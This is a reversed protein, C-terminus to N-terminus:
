TSAFIISKPAQNLRQKTTYYIKYKSSNIATATSVDKTNQLLYVGEIQLDTMTLQSIVDESTLSNVNAGKKNWFNTNAIKYDSEILPQNIENSDKYLQTNYSKQLM